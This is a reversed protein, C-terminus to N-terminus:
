LGMRILSAGLASRLTEASDAIHARTAADAGARGLRREAGELRRLLTQAQARLLARQDVRTYPQPAVVAVAIRNVHERQLERRPGAIPRGVNLDSWVAQMTHEYLEALEFAGRRDDLKGTNEILRHAVTASLLHNLVARQLSLLRAQLAYETGLFLADARDLYDPALRRQLAPSLRLGDAALVADTILTLAQRQLEAPVPQLPDRGSGPYDRLTRLGGIQRALIGTARAADALAFDLSRRLVAYDRDPPLERTEQRLFLDRAIALRKAAFAIPDSGLDLHLTEPDLGLMVDEDTGFALQPESSRAAIGQLVAREGEPTTGPPMASYAYEIAWYDYPGLTTQFPVGGREGPRPLNVANYEMVSGTTGHVRTFEPDSLQAETYIRSARFNHRLGLAHGVEHLITEKVFDLVFQQAMPSDPELEGRAAMVDMAYSAQEALLNGHLCWASHVHPTFASGSASAGPPEGGPLAIPQAFGRGLMAEFARAPGAAASPVAPHVPAGLVQTRVGRVARTSMGEFAIDADLIEGSRPDVHTPGVAGFVPDANMMWRVSAVGHDLTDWTADDPQQQVVIADRFGIREFAKNWELIGARVTDRYAHPVNRDMWFTIPRVPDSLAAEPDKKELRWRNIVRQRPTAAFDNGFDLVNTTFFGLRPDAPRAGMPEAPLPALSYHLGVLMSRADPLFRPAQPVPAGPPLMPNPLPVGGTFFHLEAEIMTAQSSGRAATIVSNGRDLGYGMRLGHQLMGAIGVIDNLFLANADVLVSRRDPHPQGLVPVAGLLSNSYSARVARAEPSGPPATVEMNRAVLRVQQHMRQFEIVQPGGVGNMRMSMLGGLVWAEGIGSSIKPSLLFPQGFQNPQIEIWVREDKRWLVLPGDIREADRIVQAFTPPASGGGPAPQQRAASGQSQFDIAAAPLSIGASGAAPGAPMPLRAQVPQVNGPGTEPQAPRQPTACAALLGILLVLAPAASRQARQASSSSALAGAPASVASPALSSLMPRNDFCADAM